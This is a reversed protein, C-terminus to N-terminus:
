SVTITGTMSTHITCFFSYTGAKSFTRSYAADTAGRGPDGDQWSVTHSSSVVFAVSQGVSISLSTPTFALGKTTVSPTSGSSAPASSTTTVPVATTITPKATTSSSNKADTTSTTSTTSTTITTAVQTTTEVANTDAPTGIADTVSASDQVTDSSCAGVILIFSVSLLLSFKLQPLKKM